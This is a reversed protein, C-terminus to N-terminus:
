QLALEASDPVLVFDHLGDRDAVWLRSDRLVAEARGRALALQGNQAGGKLVIRRDDRGGVWAEGDVVPGQVSWSIM